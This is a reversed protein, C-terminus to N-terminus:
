YQLELCSAVGVLSLVCGFSWFALVLCGIRRGGCGAPKRLLRQVVLCIPVGRWSGDSERSAAIMDSPASFGSFSKEFSTSLCIGSASASAFTHSSVHHTCWSRQVLASKSLLVSPYERLLRSAQRGRFAFAGPLCGAKNRVAAHWFSVARGPMLDRKWM